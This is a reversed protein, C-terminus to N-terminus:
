FRPCCLFYTSIAPDRMTLNGSIQLQTRLKLQRYNLKYIGVPEQDQAEPFLPGECWKSAPNPLHALYITETNVTKPPNVFHLTTDLHYKNAELHIEERYNSRLDWWWNEYMCLLLSRRTIEQIPIYYRLYIRVWSPWPRFKSQTHSEGIPLKRAGLRSLKEPPLTLSPVMARPVNSFPRKFTGCSMPCESVAPDV